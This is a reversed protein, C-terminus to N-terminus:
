TDTLLTFYNFVNIVLDIECELATVSYAMIKFSYLERFEKRICSLM